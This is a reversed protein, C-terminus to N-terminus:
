GCAASLQAVNRGLRREVATECARSSVPIGKVQVDLSFSGLDLLTLASLQTLEKFIIDSIGHPFSCRSRIQLVKLKCLSPNLRIDSIYTLKDLELEVNTLM